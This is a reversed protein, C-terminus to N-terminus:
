KHELAPPGIYSVPRSICVECAPNYILSFSRDLNRSCAPAVIFAKCTGSCSHASMVAKTSLRFCSMTSTYDQEPCAERCTCSTCCTAVRGAECGCRALLRWACAMPAGPEPVFNGSGTGFLDITRGPLDLTRTSPAKATESKSTM